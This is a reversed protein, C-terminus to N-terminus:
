AIRGVLDRGSHQFVGSLESRLDVLLAIVQCLELDGRANKATDELIASKYVTLAQVAPCLHDTHQEFDLDHYNVPISRLLHGLLCTILRPQTGGIPSTSPQASAGTIPARIASPVHEAQAM